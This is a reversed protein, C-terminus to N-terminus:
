SETLRFSARVETLRAVVKTRVDEPAPTCACSRAVVIKVVREVDFEALCPGCEELHQHVEEFSATDLEGDLYSYLRDLVERCDVAHPDGCSM